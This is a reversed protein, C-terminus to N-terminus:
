STFKWSTWVVDDSAFMMNVLEVGLTALFKYLERPDTIMKSKM